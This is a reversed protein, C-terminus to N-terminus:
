EDDRRRWVAILIAVSTAGAAVGFEFGPTGGATTTNGTAKTKKTPSTTNTDETETTTATTTTATTTTSTTTSTTSTTSSTTTSTSTTTTSTTTTSTSAATSSGTPATSGGAGVLRVSNILPTIVASQSAAGATNVLVYARDEGRDEADYAGDRNEDFWYVHFGNSGSLTGFSTFIQDADSQVRITGAAYTTAGSTAGSPTLRLDAVGYTGVNSGGHTTPLDVILFDGVDWNNNDPDIFKLFSVFTDSGSSYVVDGSSVVTEIQSDKVAKGAPRTADLGTIRLDDSNTTSGTGTALYFVDDIIAPDGKKWRLLRQTSTDETYLQLWPVHDTGSASVRTGGSVVEVDDVHLLLPPTSATCGGSISSGLCWSFFVRDASNIPGAFSVDTGTNSVTSGATCTGDNYVCVDGANLYADVSLYVYESKSTDFTGDGGTIYCIREGSAPAVLVSSASNDTDTSGVTTKTTMSSDTQSGFDNIRVDDTSVRGDSNADIYVGDTSAWTDDTSSGIIKCNSLATLPIANSKDENYKVVYWSGTVPNATASGYTTLDTDGTTVLSGASFTSTGVTVSTTRIDNLSLGLTDSAGGFCTSPLNIYVPDGNSYGAIGDVEVYFLLSSLTSTCSIAEGLGLTSSTVRTGYSYVTSATTGTSTGERIVIDGYLVDDDTGDPDTFHIFLHRSAVNTTDHDTRALVAGSGLNVLIPIEKTTSSGVRSGFTGDGGTAIWLDGITYFERENAVDIGIVHPDGNDRQGNANKDSWKLVFTTSTILTTGDPLIQDSDGGETVDAQSSSTIVDGATITVTSPSIATNTSLRIDAFGSTEVALTADDSYYVFDGPTYGPKGDTELFKVDAWFSESDVSNVAVGASAFTGKSTGTLIIDNASTSTDTSPGFHIYYVDDTIGSSGADARAIHAETPGVSAGSAVITFRPAYDTGEWAVQTGYNGYTLVAGFVNEPTFVAVLSVVALGAALTMVPAKQRLM